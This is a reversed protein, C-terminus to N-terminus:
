YDITWVDGGIHEQVEVTRNPLDIHDRLFGSDAVLSDVVPLDISGDSWRSLLGAIWDMTAITM